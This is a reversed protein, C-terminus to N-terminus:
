VGYIPLEAIAEDVTPMARTGALVEAEITGAAVWCSSAWAGLAECELRFVNDYGIYKGIANINDYRFEKAKNDLHSQIASSIDNSQQTASNLAIKDLDPQYIGDVDPTTLYVSYETGDEQMAVKNLAEHKPLLTGDERVPSLIEVAGETFFAQIKGNNNYYKM